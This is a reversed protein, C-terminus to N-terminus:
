DFGGLVFWGGVEGGVEADDVPLPDGDVDGSAGVDVAAVVRVETEGGTGVLAVLVIEVDGAGTDVAVLGVTRGDVVGTRVEGAIGDGDVDFAVLRGVLVGVGVVVRLLGYRPASSM